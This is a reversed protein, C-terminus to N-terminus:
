NKTLKRRGLRALGVLGSGLLLLTGSEPVPATAAPPDTGELVFNDVAIMMYKDSGSTSDDFWGFTLSDGAKLSLGSITFTQNRKALGFSDMEADTFWDKANSSSTLKANSVSLGSVLLSGWASGNVTPPFVVSNVAYRFGNDFAGTRATSKYNYSWPSEFDFSGHIGTLATTATYTFMILNKKGSSSNYLALSYDKADGTAYYGTVTSGSTTSKGDSVTLKSAVNSNNDLVSWGTPAAATKGAGVAALAAQGAADFNQSYLVTAEASGVWPLFLAAALVILVALKTLPPKLWSFQSGTSQILRRNFTM